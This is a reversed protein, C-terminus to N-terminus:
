DATRFRILIAEGRTQRDLRAGLRPGLGVDFWTMPGTLRRPVLFRFRLLQRVSAGVAVPLSYTQLSEVTLGAQHGARTLSAPTFQMLHRPLDASHWVGKLKRCFYCDANPVSIWIVGSKRDLLKKMAALTEVPNPTHELVHNATILEFTQGPHAEAFMEVTGTFVNLGSQRAREAAIASPEIGTANAGLRTAIRLFFGAGAGVDLVRQRETITVHRFEGRQRAEAVVEDDAASASHSPDYPPYDPAYYPELEEWTPQPNVFGHPCRDCRSVQWRKQDSRTTTVATYDHRIDNSGCIPCSKLEVM